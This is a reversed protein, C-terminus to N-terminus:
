AILVITLSVIGELPKWLLLGGVVIALIASLLAWWFGAAQREMLTIVFGSIGSILFLWGLFITVALTAFPPVVIVAAGFIVLLVGETLFLAWHDHISKVNAASGGQTGLPNITTM